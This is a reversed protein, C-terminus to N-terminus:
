IEEFVLEGKILSFVVAARNTSIRPEVEFDCTAVYYQAIGINV